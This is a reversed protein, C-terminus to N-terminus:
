QNSMPPDCVFQWCLSRRRVHGIPFYIGLMYFFITAFHTQQTVLLFDASNLKNTRADAIRTIDACFMERRHNIIRPFRPVILILSYHFNNFFVTFHAFHLACLHCRCGAVSLVFLTARSTYRFGYNTPRSLLLTPSSTPNAYRVSLSLLRIPYTISQKRVSSVLPSTPAIQAFSPVPCLLFSLSYLVFHLHCCLGSSHLFFYSVFPMLICFAKFCFHSVCLIVIIFPTNLITICLFSFDIPFYCQNSPCGM